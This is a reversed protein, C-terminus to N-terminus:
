NLKYVRLVDSYEKTRVLMIPNPPLEPYLKNFLPDYISELERIYLAVNIPEKDPNNIWIDFDRMSKHVQFENADVYVFSLKDGVKIDLHQDRIYSNM